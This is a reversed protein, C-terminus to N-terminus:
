RRPVNGSPPRPQATTRFDSLASPDTDAYSDDDVDVQM